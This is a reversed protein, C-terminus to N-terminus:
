AVFSLVIGSGNDVWTAGIAFELTKTSQNYYKYFDDYACNFTFAGSFSSSVNFADNEVYKVFSNGNYTNGIPIFIAFRHIIGMAAKTEKVGERSTNIVVSKMIGASESEDYINYKTGASNGDVVQEYDTWSERYKTGAGVISSDITANNLKAGSPFILAILSSRTSNLAGEIKSKAQINSITGMSFEYVVGAVFKDGKITNESIAGTEVNYKAVLIQDINNEGNTIMSVVVGAVINGNINSGAIVQSINGKNEVVVGGVRVNNNEYYTGINEMVNKVNTITGNNIATVGAISITSTMAKAISIGDGAVNTNSITGFNEGTVGGAFVNAVADLITINTNIRTDGITGYNEATAGGVRSEVTSLINIVSHGTSNYVNGYNQGVMGGVKANGALIVNSNSEVINANAANVGVIGGAVATNTASTLNVGSVQVKSINAKEVYGAVGGFNTIEASTIGSEFVVVVNEINSTAVTDSSTILGALAGANNANASMGTVIITLNRVTSNDIKGFVGLLGDKSNALNVRITSGNGDIISNVLNIPTHNDLEFTKADSFAINNDVIDSSFVQNFNDEDTDTVELDRMFYEGSPSSPDQSNMALMPLRTSSLSWIYDTDWMVINAKDVAYFIYSNTAVADAVSAFGRVMYLSAETNYFVTKDTYADNLVIFYTNNFSGVMDTDVIDTDNAKIAINGILHRLMTSVVDFGTGSEVIRGIFAGYIGAYNGGNHKDLTTNAYSQQISGNESTIVFEGVFGGIAQCNQGSTITVDNAYTAQITAVDVKGVFGGVIAHDTNSVNITAGEVASVQLKTGNYLGAFAGTINTNNTNEITANKVMVNEVNGSVIGALTGAYAYSGSITSDLITLDKVEAGANITSFLGAHNYTGNLNMGKISYGNGDFKGSFGIWSNSDTNFGIPQFSSTLAVDNMLAYSASLDYIRGIKNLESEGFVYYPHEESGNGVHVVIEFKSYKKNTTGIVLTIDGKAQDSVVYCNSNSQYSIANNVEEGAASYDFKTKHHPKKRTIGLSDVSITDGTNCFIEKTKVSIVEDNRLFYYTTLGMSVVVVISVLFILFKKM